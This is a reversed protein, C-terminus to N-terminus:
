RDPRDLCLPPFASKTFYLQQEIWYVKQSPSPNLEGSKQFAWVEAQSKQFCDDLEVNRRSKPAWQALCSTASLSRTEQVGKRPCLKISSARTPDFPKVHAPSDRARDGRYGVEVLPEVRTKSSRGSASISQYSRRCQNRVSEENKICLELRAMQFYHEQM